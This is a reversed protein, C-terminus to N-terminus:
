GDILREVYRRRRQSPLDLIQKESWGYATALAHVDDTLQVATAAVESWLFLTADFTARWAHACLACTLSLRLDAQPDAGLLAEGVAEVVEPPLDVAEVSRGHHTADVVCSELLSQAAAATDSCAAAQALATGTVTRATVVYSDGCRLTVERAPEPAAPAIRQQVREIDVDVALAQGCSPCTTRAPLLSGFTSRRLELACAERAGLDAADLEAADWTPRASTLLLRGQEAPGCGEGSDVLDIIQGATLRSPMQHDVSADM